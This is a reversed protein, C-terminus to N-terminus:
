YPINDGPKLPPPYTGTPLETGFLAANLESQTLMYVLLGGNIQHDPEHRRLYACLRGLRLAEYINADNVLRAEGYQQIMRSRETLDQISFITEIVQRLRQYEQEFDTRWPGAAPNYVSQLMTASIIYVGPSLRVEYPQQKQPELQERAFYCPLLTANVGYVSPPSSGFYSLYVRRKRTAEDDLGNERMWEGLAPLEQGWDYSSDVLHHYGGDTGGGTFNFYALYNPYSWPGVVDFVFWTLCIATVWKASLRVQKPVVTRFPEGQEPGDDTRIAEAADNHGFWSGRGGLWAGAAGMLIFIAPFTPLIHRIGINIHGTIATLWYLGIIAWLPATAYFGSILLSLASKGLRKMQHFRRVAHAVIALAALLFVSFPTKFLVCYPFFSPFGQTGFRGNLFSNFGAVTAITNLFCTLYAEPFLHLRHFMRIVPVLSSDKVSPHALWAEFQPVPAQDRSFTMMAPDGVYTSFRFGFLAWITIWTALFHTLLVIGFVPLLGTPNTVTRKYGPLDVSLPRGDLFRLLMLGLGMPVLLLTSFKSALALGWVISSIVLGKTTVEQLLNWLTYMAATFALAAPLDITASSAHALVNPNFAYLLMATFGGVTGWLKRGWLFVVWACLVSWLSTMMRSKHFLEQPDNGSEFVFKRGYEWNNATLWMDGEPAPANYGGLYLPLTIWRHQLVAVPYMRYDGTVWGSYGNALHSMEDFTGSKGWTAMNSLGFHVVLLSIVGANVLMSSAGGSSKAAPLGSKQWVASDVLTDGGAM